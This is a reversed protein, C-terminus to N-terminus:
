SEEGIRAALRRKIEEHFAKLYATQNLLTVGADAFRRAAASSAGYVSDAAQEFDAASAFHLEFAFAADDTGIAQMFPVDAPRSAGMLASESVGNLFTANMQGTLGLAPDSARKENDM